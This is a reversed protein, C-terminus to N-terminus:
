WRNFTFPIGCVTMFCFWIYWVEESIDRFISQKNHTEPKSLNLKLQTLVKVEYSENNKQLSLFWDHLMPSRKAKGIEIVLNM